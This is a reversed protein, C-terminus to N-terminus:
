GCESHCFELIKIQPSYDIAGVSIYASWKEFRESQSLVSWGTVFVIVFMTEGERDMHLWCLAPVPTPPALWGPATFLLCCWCWWCPLSSLARSTWAWAKRRKQSTMKWRRRRAWRHFVFHISLTPSPFYSVSLSIVHTPTFFKPKVSSCFFISCPDM